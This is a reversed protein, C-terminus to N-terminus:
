QGPPEDSAHARALLERGRVSPKNDEEVSPQIGAQSPIDVLVVDISRTHATDAFEHILELVDPHITHSLSGDLIVSSGDPLEHLVKNVGARNLFSLNESLQIVVTPHERDGTSELHHVFYATSLNSRLIFFVAVVMGIGVGKLLDFALVFVITALFPAWLEPGQKLMKQFLEFRALKYGVHLLIAALAALPVHNMAFALLLVATLLWVGHFFSSVRSRAGAHINASGRVIVATVPLGGLLGSVMNGIGQAMLERNTPTSRKYPDLKDMAEICLLTEISAVAALTLAVTYVAPDGIRHFDPFSMERWLESLGGGPLSVLHQGSLQASPAVFGLVTNAVVGLVVVVLPGPLWRLNKLTPIREWVVLIALGGLAIAMAAPELHEFGLRIQDLPGAEGQRLLTLDGEFDADWGFAHPVQKIILIIGISALMGKIVSSPFYYAFIGARIAGLLVQMAGAIVVALLFAEWGLSGIAGVCIATLGAAPGSVATHSASIWAVVVGGVIGAILGSLPPADSAVAIGLCLPLAVLFVVVSAPLDFRLNKRWDRTPELGALNPPPVSARVTRARGAGAAGEVTDNPVKEM